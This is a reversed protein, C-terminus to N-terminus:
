DFLSVIFDVFPKAFVLFHNFTKNFFLNFLIFFFVLFLFQLLFIFGYFFALYFGLAELKFEEHLLFNSM